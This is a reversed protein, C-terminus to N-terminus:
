EHNRVFELGRVLLRWGFTTIGIFCLTVIIFVLPTDRHTFAVRLVLAIACGALWTVALTRWSTHHSMYLGLPLAVGFWGVLFPWLVTFYWTLGSEPDHSARGLAVFLALCVGDIGAALARAIRPQM